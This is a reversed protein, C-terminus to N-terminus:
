QSTRVNVRECGNIRRRVADLTAGTVVLPACGAAEGM